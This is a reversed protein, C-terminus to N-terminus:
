PVIVSLCSNMTRKLYLHVLHTGVETIELSIAIFNVNSPKEVIERPGVCVHIEIEPRDYDTGSHIYPSVSM